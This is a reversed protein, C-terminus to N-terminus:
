RRQRRVEFAAKVAAETSTLSYGRWSERHKLFRNLNELVPPPSRTPSFRDRGLARPGWEM